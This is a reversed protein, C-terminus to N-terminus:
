FFLLSVISFIVSLGGAIAAFYGFARAKDIPLEGVFKGTQGNMAFSYVKGKYTSSLLWVPMLAYSIDGKKLNINSSEVRCSSYGHVTDQLTSVVSNKIRENAREISQNADVDYKNTLIGALYATQFDMMDNYNFPEIAEMYADDMVTSGDVPVKEFDMDGHRVISYHDTKTYRYNSDSWTRVKTGKFRMKADTDCDFLWFPVYVPKIEDIHNEQAFYKPLLPKGTMFDKLRAKAIKKDLKFPIVYDPRFTGSLKEKMIVPNGCYPCNTGAVTDDAIIEGGCSNCVYNIMGDTEGEQWDGNGSNEDYADWEIEKEEVDKLDEDYGKLSDIEFETDCYPCKLNQSSSDFGIAGGCNPCKYEMLDSMM